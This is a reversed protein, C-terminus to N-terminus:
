TGPTTAKRKFVIDAVAPEFPITLREIKGSAGSVFTVRRRPVGLASDETQEFVDYHYHALAGTETGRTMMLRGDKEAITVTGYAPHEYAGAFQALPRSPSTGPVREAERKKEREASQRESREQQANARAVYDTQSLGLLREYVNNAVIGPLPNTGSFNTLVVVGIRDHPLWSMASMFGDIGGTHDVLKHGRFSRVSVGMGYGGPGIETYVPAEPDPTALVASHVSQMRMSFAKSVLPKGGVTGQDIHMQVYKLMDDINSNIAGAPAIADINRFPVATVKKARLMYPLAYDAARPMDRVSTNSSTMGIPVFIRERVVDDWSRKTLREVLYGATMFMLNNYQYRQRFTASPELYRLREYLEQRSLPTGYWVQDHRPLGSVHTVLDLPTMLRTAVDDNLEFDPLYTRLPKDWELKKEDSLMGLLTVTFSKTNSGIAMLTQPTVPLQKDVDRYGYGKALVVKGDKIAGVALGPISWQKMVQEVFGDFGAFPDSTQAPTAQRSVLLLLLLLAVFATQRYRVLSPM